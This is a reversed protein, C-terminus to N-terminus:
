SNEVKFFRSEVDKKMNLTLSMRAYPIGRSRTIKKEETRKEEKGWDMFSSLVEHAKDRARQLKKLSMHSSALCICTKGNIHLTNFGLKFPAGWNYSVLGADEVVTRIGYNNFFVSDMVRM